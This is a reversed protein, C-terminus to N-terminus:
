PLDCPIRVFYLKVALAWRTMFYFVACRMMGDSNEVKRQVTYIFITVYNSIQKFKFYDNETDM